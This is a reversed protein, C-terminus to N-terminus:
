VLLDKLTNKEFPEPRTSDNAQSGNGAMTKSAESKATSIENTTTLDKQESANSIKNEDLAM